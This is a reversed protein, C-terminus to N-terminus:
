GSVNVPRHELIDGFSISNKFKETTKLQAIVRTAKFYDSANEPYTYPHNNDELFFNSIECDVIAQMALLAEIQTCLGKKYQEAVQAIEEQVREKNLM